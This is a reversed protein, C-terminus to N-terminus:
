LVLGYLAVGFLRDTADTVNSRARIALRSGAPIGAPLWQNWQPAYWGTTMSGFPLGVIFPVESGAGGVAVDLYFGLASATPASNAQGGLRVQLAALDESTSATIQTWAGYTNAVAGPDIQTGKSTATIAGYTVIRGAAPPTWLSRRIGTMRIQWALAGTSDQSRASIQSGAPIPVPITFSSAARADGGALIDAAIVVESGTAGVAIDVLGSVVGNPQGITVLLEDIDWTTSAIAVGYSGKANAAGSNYTGGLNLTESYGPGHDVRFDPM